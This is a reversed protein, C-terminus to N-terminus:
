PYLETYHKGVICSAEQSALVPFILLTRVAQITRTAITNAKSGRKSFAKFFKCLLRGGLQFKANVFM